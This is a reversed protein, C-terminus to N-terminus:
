ARGNSGILRMRARAAEYVAQKGALLVKHPHFRKRGPVTEVNGLDLAKRVAEIFAGNIIYAV